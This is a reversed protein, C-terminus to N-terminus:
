ADDNFVASVSQGALLPQMAIQGVVLGGLGQLPIAQLSTLPTPQLPKFSILRNAITPGIPSFAAQQLTEWAYRQAGASPQRTYVYQASYTVFDPQTVVENTTLPIARRKFWDHIM